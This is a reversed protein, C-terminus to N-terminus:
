YLIILMQELQLVCRFMNDQGFKYFVGNQLMFLKTKQGLYQKQSITFRELM